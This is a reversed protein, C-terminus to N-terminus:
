AAQWYITEERVIAHTSAWEDEGLNGGSYVYWCAYCRDDWTEKTRNGCEACVLWVHNTVTV